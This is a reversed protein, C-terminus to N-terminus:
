PSKLLTVPGLLGSDMLPTAPTLKAINTRTFRKGAPLSADGIIRNPWFNVVEVALRNPGPKLAATVEVRWPPCWAVGCSQGNVKVEALERVDGLDLFVREGAATAPGDFTQEYVATGSYYKIGPEPRKTWSVLEDFPVSEPGGWQPDFHVTWPGAVTAVPQLELRNSKALAPHQASPERFVVFWSGYPAFELPVSTRGDKEEYAAAFKREGTVANWLEPAKGSVRFTATASAPYNTRYAVFYIEAGGDTRHIYDLPLGDAGSFECDPPVGDGLLVARAGRDAIVRGGPVHGGWLEDALGAIGADTAAEDTLTEGKVPKPGVVTAGAAV